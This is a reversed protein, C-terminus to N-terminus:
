FVLQSCYVVLRWVEFSGSALIYPSAVHKRRGPIYYDVFDDMLFLFLFTTLAWGM